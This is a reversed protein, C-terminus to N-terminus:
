FKGGLEQKIACLEEPSVTNFVIVKQSDTLTSWLSTIVALTPFHTSKPKDPTKEIPTRDAPTQVVPTQKIPTKEIDPKMAEELLAICEDRENSQPESKSIDLPTRNRTDKVNPDAKHKLLLKISEPRSYWAAYHLPTMESSDKVAHDAKYAILLKATEVSANSIACHLPTKGESSKTTLDAKNELLLRVIEIEDCNAAKHLMTRGYASNLMPNNIIASHAAIVPNVILKFQDYTTNLNLVRLFKHTKELYDYLTDSNM